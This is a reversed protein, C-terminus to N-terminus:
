LIFTTPTGTSTQLGSSKSVSIKSNNAFDPIQTSPVKGNADLSAIGNAGGISGEIDEEISKKNNLVGNLIQNLTYEDLATKENEFGTQFLKNGKLLEDWSHNPIAM